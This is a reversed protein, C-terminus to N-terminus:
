APVERRQRVLLALHAGLFGGLAGLLAGVLLTLGVVALGPLNGLLEGMTRTMAGVARADVWFNYLVLGAWALAAGAAGVWVGGRVAWFGGAAGALLTWAWGLTLHLVLALLATALIQLLRKMPYVTSRLGDETWRGSM